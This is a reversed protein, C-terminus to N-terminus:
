PTADDIDQEMQDENSWERLADKVKDIFGKQRPKDTSDQQQDGPKTEEHQPETGGGEDEGGPCYRFSIFTQLM